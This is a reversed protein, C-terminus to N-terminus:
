GYLLLLVPGVVFGCSFHRIEHLHEKGVFLLCLKSLKWLELIKFAVVSTVRKFPSLGAMPVLKRVSIETLALDARFLFMAGADPM